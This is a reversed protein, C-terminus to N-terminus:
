TLGGTVGDKAAPHNKQIMFWDVPLFALEIRYFQLFSKVLAATQAIISGIFRPRLTTVRILGGGSLRQRHFRPLPAGHSHVGSPLVFGSSRYCPLLAQRNRGNYRTAYPLVHDLPANQILVEIQTAGRIRQIRGSVFYDSQEPSKTKM